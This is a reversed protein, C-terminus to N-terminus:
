FEETKEWAWHVVCWDEICNERTILEHDKGWKHIMKREWFPYYVEMIQDETITKIEGGMYSGNGAYAPEDYYFTRM